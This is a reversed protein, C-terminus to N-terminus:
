NIAFYTTTRSYDIIRKAPSSSGHMKHAWSKTVTSLFGRLKSKDPALQIYNM